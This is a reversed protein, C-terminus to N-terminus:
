YAYVTPLDLTCVVQCCLRIFIYQLNNSYSTILVTNQVPTRIGGPGGYVYHRSTFSIVISMIFTWVTHKHHAQMTEVPCTTVSHVARYHSFRLTPPFTITAISMAYFSTLGPRLLSFLLRLRSVTRM